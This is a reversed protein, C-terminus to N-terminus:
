TTVALKVSRMPDQTARLGKHTPNNSSTHISAQTDPNNEWLLCHRSIDSNFSKLLVFTICFVYQLITSSITHLGSKTIYYQEVSLYESLPLM